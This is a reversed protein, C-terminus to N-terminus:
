ANAGGEVVKAASMANGSEIQFYSIAVNKGKTERVPVTIRHGWPTFNGELRYPDFVCKLDDGDKECVVYHEPVDNDKNGHPDYGVVYLSGDIAKKFDGDLFKHVQAENECVFRSLCFNFPGQAGSFSMDMNHKEGQGMFKYAHKASVYDAGKKGIAGARLLGTLAQLNSTITCDCLRSILNAFALAFCAATSGTSSVLYRDDGYKLYVDTDTTEFSSLLSYVSSDNYVYDNFVDVMAVDLVCRPGSCRCDIYYGDEDHPVRGDVYSMGQRYWSLEVAVAIGLAQFYSSAEVPKGDLKPITQTIQLPVKVPAAQGEKWYRLWFFHRNGKEEDVPVEYEFKKPPDLLASRTFVPITAKYGGYGQLEVDFAYGAEIQLKYDPGHLEITDGDINTVVYNFFPVGAYSRLGVWDNRTSRRSRPTSPVWAEPHAYDIKGHYANIWNRGAEKFPYESKVWGPAMQADNILLLQMTETTTATDFHVRFTAQESRSIGERQDASLNTEGYWVGKKNFPYRIDGNPTEVTVYEGKAGREKFIPAAATLASALPDFHLGNKTSEYYISM